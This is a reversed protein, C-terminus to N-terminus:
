SRGFEALRRRLQDANAHQLEDLITLAQRGTRRAADGDGAAHHTEALRGLTAAEEYRDSATRYLQIARQYCEIARRHNGLHHNAFGISDWTLAEGHRDGIQQHLALARECDALAREHHGLQVHYWGIANLSNAQGLLHGAAEYLKLARDTHDIAELHQGQLGLVRALGRHAHAQGTHDGLEGHLDIARRLHTCADQYRGQWTYARALGRHTHAQGARDGQRQAAALATQQSALLDHWRGQRQLATALTWALRWAHGDFGASAAQQIAALLVRREAACWALARADGALREPTVGPEATALAIPHRHPELLLAAANASHLYHDLVRHCAARREAASDHLDALETAYTRLLDHCAYRGPTHETLLHVRALEAILPRVRAVPLGALSAAAPATLDPGPHLGVLRFLRAAGPHLARYSWSFVARIDAERDGETFADLGDGVDRLQEALAAVTFDPHAAARAAVINLALPLRACRAIIEEVAAREAQVRERGLRVALLQWAEAPTFVDVSIPHAGETVVLGSLRRRSTVLVLCTSGGPLLPRVQETDAANDLVLLVRRGALLSRYLAARADLSVPIREPPLGFAELFGGIADAPDMPSGGQDFGRLNVYLQGDPFRSAARHAWHLAMTTKGVGPPGTIPSIAIAAAASFRSSAVALQDLAALERERGVFHGSVAPLQRPVLTPSPTEREDARASSSLQAAVRHWHERWAASDGGCAEVFTLTM